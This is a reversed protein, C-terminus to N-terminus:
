CPQLPLGAQQATLFQPFLSNWRNDHFAMKGLFYLIFDSSYYTSISVIINKLAALNIKKSVKILVSCTEKQIDYKQTINWANYVVLKSRDEPQHSKELEADETFRNTEPKSSVPWQSIHLPCFPLHSHQNTPVWVLEEGVSLFGQESWSTTLILPRSKPSSLGSDKKNFITIVM